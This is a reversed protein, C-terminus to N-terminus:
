RHLSPRHRLDPGFLLAGGLRWLGPLHLDSRRRSRWWRGPLGAERQRVHLNSGHRLM